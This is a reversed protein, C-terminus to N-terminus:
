RVHLLVELYITLTLHNRLGIFAPIVNGITEADAQFDVSATQFPKLIVVLEPLVVIKFATLNGYNKVANLRNCVTPDKDIAQLFKSLVYSILETGVPQMKPQSVSAM